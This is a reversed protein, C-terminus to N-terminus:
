HWCTQRCSHNKQHCTLTSHREMMVDHCKAHLQLSSTGDARSLGMRIVGHGHSTPEPLWRDNRYVTLKHGYKHWIRSFFERLIPFSITSCWYYSYFFERAGVSSCRTRLNKCLPVWSVNCNEWPCDTRGFVRALRKWRNKGRHFYSLTTGLLIRPSRRQACLSPSLATSGHVPFRSQHVLNGRHSYPLESARGSVREDSRESTRESARRPWESARGSAREAVRENTRDSVWFLCTVIITLFWSEKPLLSRTLPCTSVDWNWSAELPLPKLPYSLSYM